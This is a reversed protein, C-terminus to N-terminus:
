CRRGASRLQASGDLAYGRGSSCRRLSADRLAPVLCLCTAWKRRVSRANRPRPRVTRVKPCFSLAPKRGSKRNTQRSSAVLLAPGYGDPHGVLQRLRRQDPRSTTTCCGGTLKVGPGLAYNAGVEWKQRTNSGFALSTAPNGNFCTSNTGPVGACSTSRRPMAHGHCDDCRERQRQRQHQLLRGVHVVDAVPRDRVHHGRHLLPHRQRRRHLLECRPRQQRLRHRWRGHLRRLRVACRGGVAEVRDPQCGDVM